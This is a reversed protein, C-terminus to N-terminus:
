LKPRAKERERVHRRAREGLCVCASPCACAGGWCWAAVALRHTLQPPHRCFFAACMHTNDRGASRTGGARGLVPRPSTHHHLAHGRCPPSLSLRPSPLSPASACRACFFVRKRTSRGAPSFSRVSGGGVGVCLSGRRCLWRGERGLSGAGRTRPGPTRRGAAPTGGETRAPAPSGPTDAAVATSGAEVVAGAAPPPHQPPCLTGPMTAPTCTSSGPTRSTDRSVRM